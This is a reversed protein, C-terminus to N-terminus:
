RRQAQKENEEQKIIAEVEDKDDATAIRWYNFIRRKDDYRHADEYAQWLVGSAQKILENNVSSDSFVSLTILDNNNYLTVGLARNERIRDMVKLIQKESFSQDSKPSSVTNFTGSWYFAGCILLLVGAISLVPPLKSRWSAKGRLKGECVACVVHDDVVRPTELKGIAAGCNECTEM